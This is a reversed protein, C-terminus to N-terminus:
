FISMSSIEPFGPVWMLVVGMNGSRKTLSDKPMKGRAYIGMDKCQDYTHKNIKQEISINRKINSHQGIM